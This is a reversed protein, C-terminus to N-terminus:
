TINDRCSKHMYWYLNLKKRAANLSDVCTVSRGGDNRKIGIASGKEHAASSILWDYGNVMEQNFIIIFKRYKIIFGKENYIKESM